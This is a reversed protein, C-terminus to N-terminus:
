TNNRSFLSKYNDYLTREKQVVIQFPSMGYHPSINRMMFHGSKRPTNISANELIMKEKKDPYNSYINLFKIEPWKVKFRGALEDYEAITNLIKEFKYSKSFNIILGNLKPFSEIIMPITIQSSSIGNFLLYEIGNCHRSLISIHNNNIRECRDIIIGKLTPRLSSCILSFNPISEFFRFDMELHELKDMLLLDERLQNVDGEM